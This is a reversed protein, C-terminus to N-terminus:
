DKPDRKVGKEVLRRIAEPRGPKDPQAERWQDLLELDDSLLRVGILTGGGTEPPGPRRKAKDPKDSQQKAM